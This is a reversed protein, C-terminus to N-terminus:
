REKSNQEKTKRKYNEIIKMSEQTEVSTKLFDFGEFDKDIVDGRFENSDLYYDVPIKYFTGKRTLLTGSYGLGNLFNKEFKEFGKFDGNFFYHKLKAFFFDQNSKGFVQSCKDLNQLTFILKNVGSEINAVDDKYDEEYKSRIYVLENTPRRLRRNFTYKLNDKFLKSIAQKRYEYEHELGSTFRGRPDKCISLYLFALNDRYINLYANQMNCIDSASLKENPQQMYYFYKDLNNELDDFAEIVEKRPITSFKSCIFDYLDKRSKLGAKVLDKTPVGISYALMPVFFTSQGYVNTSYNFNLEDDYGRRRTAISAAMETFVENLAVGENHSPKIKLRVAKIIDDPKKVLGTLSRGNEDKNISVAHYVEHTLYRYLKRGSKDDIVSNTDIVIKRGLSFYYGCVNDMKTPVIMITKLNENLTDIERKFEDIDMGFTYARRLMILKVLDTFDGYQNNRIKKDLIKVFKPNNDILDFMDSM